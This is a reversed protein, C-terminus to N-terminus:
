ATGAAVESAPYGADGLLQALQAAPLASQVQVRKRALDTTVQAQADAQTIAASIRRACGGCRMSPIEFENM